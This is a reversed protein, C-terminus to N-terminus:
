NLRKWERSQDFYLNIYFPIKEMRCLQLLGEILENESKRWSQDEWRALLHSTMGARDDTTPKIYYSSSFLWIGRDQLSKPLSRFYGVLLQATDPWVVSKGTSDFVIFGAHEPGTDFDSQPITHVQFAEESYYSIELDDAQNSKSKM